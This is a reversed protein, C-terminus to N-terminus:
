TKLSRSLHGLQGLSCSQFDHLNTICGRPNSDGDRRWQKKPIYETTSNQQAKKKYKNTHFLHFLPQNSNLKATFPSSQIAERHSPTNQVYTKNSNTTRKKCAITKDSGTTKTSDPSNTLKM